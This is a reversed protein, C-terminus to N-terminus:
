ELRLELGLHQAILRGYEELEGGDGRAMDIVLPRREMPVVLLRRFAMRSRGRQDTTVQVRDVDDVPIAFTRVLPLVGAVRRIEKRAADFYWEETVFAAVLALTAVIAPILSVSDGAIMVAVMLVTVAGWLLRPLLPTRLALLDPSIEELRPSITM